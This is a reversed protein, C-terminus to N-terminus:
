MQHQNVSWGYSNETMMDNKDKKLINFINVTTELSLVSIEDALRRVITETGGWM